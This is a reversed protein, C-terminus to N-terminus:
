EAASRGLEGASQALDQVNIRTLEASLAEEAQVMVPLVVSKLTAGPRHWLRWHGM